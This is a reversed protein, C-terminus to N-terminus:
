FPREVVTELYAACKRAEELTYDGGPKHMDIGAGARFDKYAAAEPVSLCKVLGYREANLRRRENEDDAEAGVRKVGDEDVYVDVTGKPGVQTVKRMPKSQPEDGIEEASVEGMGFLDSCARNTARTAATAPIDHEPKTFRRELRDCVGLGDMYRGNPATARVIVEARILRGADDREYNRELYSCSVGFAVALKRWASKKRYERGQIAQFDDPTLLRNCLAVYADFSEAITDLGAAPRVLAGADIVSALAAVSPLETM